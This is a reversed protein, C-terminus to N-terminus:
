LAEGLVQRSWVTDLLQDTFRYIPGNLSVFLLETWSDRSALFDRTSFKSLILSKPM